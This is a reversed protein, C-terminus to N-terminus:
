FEALGLEQTMRYQRRKLVCEIRRSAICYLIQGRHMVFRRIGSKGREYPCLLGSVANLQNM